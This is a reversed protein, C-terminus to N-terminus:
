WVPVVGVFDTSSGAGEVDAFSAEELMLQPKLVNATFAFHGKALAIPTIQSPSPMTQFAVSVVCVRFKPEFRFTIQM